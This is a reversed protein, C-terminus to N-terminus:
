VEKLMALTPNEKKFIEKQEPTLENYESFFNYLTEGDFSFVHEGVRDYIDLWFIKDSENKKYLSYKSYKGKKYNSSVDM